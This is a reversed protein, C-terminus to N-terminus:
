LYDQKMIGSVFWCIFEDNIYNVEQINLIHLKEHFYHFYHFNIYHEIIFFIHINERLKM